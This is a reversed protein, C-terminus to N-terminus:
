HPGLPVAVQLGTLVSHANMGDLAARGAGLLPGALPSSSHRGAPFSGPSTSGASCNEQCSKGLQGSRGWSTVRSRRLPLTHPGM